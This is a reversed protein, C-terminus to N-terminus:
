FLTEDAPPVPAPEFPIVPRGAARAAMIIGISKIKRAQDDTPPKVKLMATGMQALGPTDICGYPLKHTESYENEAALLEASIAASVKAHGNTKAPQTPAVPAADPKPAPPQPPEPAPTAYEKLDIVNGEEDTDAGLEEPTYIPANFIDPAYWKVGNSIARAFLMNRPFKDLNKTGAKKADDIDFRSRGTEKGKEFFALECVKDDLVIIRYDYKGSRKVAAAMLGAGISPKGSIIFVGSMSSFAGFGMEMGALIKVLAQAADRSDTFFGSKAMATAAREADDMSAIINTNRIALDNM